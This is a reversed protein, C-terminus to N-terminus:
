AAGVACEPAIGSVAEAARALLSSGDRMATQGQALLDADQADTADAVTQLGRAYTSLATVTLRNAAAAEGPVASERQEAVLAAVDDAARRLADADLSELTGDAPTAAEIAGVRTLREATETLWPELQACIDTESAPTAPVAAEDPEGLIVIISERGTVAVAGTFGVAYSEGAQSGPVLAGVYRLRQALDLHGFTFQEDGIAFEESASQVLQGLGVALGVGPAQRHLTDRLEFSYEGVLQGASFSEPDAWNAGAAENFYIRLEGTAASITVDARDTSSAVALEGVFTFRATQESQTDDIFLDADGLGGVFSAYGYLTVSEPTFAGRGNLALTPEGLPGSAVEVIAAESEQDQFRLILRSAAAPWITWGVFLAVLLAAVGTKSVRAM